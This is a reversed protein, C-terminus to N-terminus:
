LDSSRGAPFNYKPMPVCCARQRVLVALTKRDGFAAVREASRVGTVYVANARLLRTGFESHTEFWMPMEALVSRLGGFDGATALRACRPTGPARRVGAALGITASRPRHTRRVGAALPSLRRVVISSQQLGSLKSRERFIASVGVGSASSVSFSSVVVASPRLCAM